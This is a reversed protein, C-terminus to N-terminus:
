SIFYDYSRSSYCSLPGEYGSHPLPRQTGVLVKACLVRVTYVVSIRKRVSMIANMENKASTDLAYEVVVCIHDIHNPDPSQPPWQLCGKNQSM